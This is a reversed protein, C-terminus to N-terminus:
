SEGSLIGQKLREITSLLPPRQPTATTDMDSPEPPLPSASSTLDITQQKDGMQQEITSFMMQLPKKMSSALAACWTIKM